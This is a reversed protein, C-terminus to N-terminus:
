NEETNEFPNEMNIIANYAFNYDDAEVYDISGDQGWYAYVISDNVEFALVMDVEDNDNYKYFAGLFTSDEYEDTYGEIISRRMDNEETLEDYTLIENDIWTVGTRNIVYEQVGDDTEYTEDSVVIGSETGSVSNTESITEIFTENAITNTEAPTNTSCATLLLAITIPIILKKM